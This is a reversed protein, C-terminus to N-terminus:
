EVRAREADTRAVGALRARALPIARVDGARLACDLAAGAVLPDAPDLTSLQASMAQPPVDIAGALALRAFAVAVVPDHARLRSLSRALKVTGPEAPSRRALALLRHRADAATIVDDTVAEARREALEIRGDADLEGADLAGAAALPVALATEIPDGPVLPARPLAALAVRAAQASGARSLAAGYALWVEPPL